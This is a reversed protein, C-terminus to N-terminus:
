GRHAKIGSDWWKARENLIVKNVAYASHLDKGRRRKEQAEPMDADTDAADEEDRARKREVEDATSPRPKPVDISDKRAFGGALAFNVLNLLPLIIM